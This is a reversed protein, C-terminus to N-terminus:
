LKLVKPQSDGLPTTTATNTPSQDVANTDKSTHSTSVTTNQLAPASKDASDNKKDAVNQTPNNGKSAAEDDNEDTKGNNGELVSTSTLENSTEECKDDEKSGNISRDAELPERQEGDLEDTRTSAQEANVSLSGVLEPTIEELDLEEASELNEKNANSSGVLEPTSAESKPENMSTSVVFEPSGDVEDVGGADMEESKSRVNSRDHVSWRLGIKKLKEEYEPKLKKKIRATRQRNIWRGLAKPPDDLTKYTTPVNGDWEGGSQAKREAVYRVLLSYMKDWTTLELMSWKLGLKELAAQRDKRLKGSQYQSRQRNVWRGLNRDEGAFKGDPRAKIQYSTPVNGDWEGGDKTQEEVYLRLEELTENWSNAPLVSWRLGVDELRKSRDERLSGKAKSTRQNNVWRGLKKGDVTIHNTPVNGDWIWMDQEYESLDQTDKRRRDDIFQILSTFMSEWKQTSKDGGAPKSPVPASTTAVPMPMEASRVLPAIPVNEPQAVTRNSKKPTVHLVTPTSQQSSSRCATPKVATQDEVSLNTPSTRKVRKKLPISSTTNTSASAATSCSNSHERVRKKLPHSRASVAARARKRLEAEEREDMSSKRVGDEYQEPPQEQESDSSNDSGAKTRQAVLPLARRNSRRTSVRLSLSSPSSPRQNKKPSRSNRKRPRKSTKPKPVNEEEEEMEVDEEEQKATTNEDVVVETTAPDMALLSSASGFSHKRGLMALDLTAAAANAADVAVALAEPDLGVTASNVSLSRARLRMITSSTDSGDIALHKDLVTEQINEHDDEEEEDEGEAPDEPDRRLVADEELNGVLEVAGAIEALQDGMSAVTASVFAQLDITVDIGEVQMPLGTMSAESASSLSNLRDRTVFRGSAPNTSSTHNQNTTGAAVTSAGATSGPAAADALGDMEPLTAEGDDPPPPMMMAMTFHGPVSSNATRSVGGGLQQLAGSLDSMAGWSELRERRQGSVSEEGADSASGLSGLRDRRSEELFHQLGPLVSSSVVSEQRERGAPVGDTTTTNTNLLMADM